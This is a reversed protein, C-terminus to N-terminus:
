SNHGLSGANFCAIFLAANNKYLFNKSNLDISKQLQSNRKYGQSLFIIWYTLM